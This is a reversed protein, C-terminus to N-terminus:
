WKLGQGALPNLGEGRAPSPNPLPPFALAEASMGREGLGEGALPSPPLNQEEASGAPLGFALGAPRLPPLAPGVSARV